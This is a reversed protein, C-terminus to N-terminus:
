ASLVGAASVPAKPEFLRRWGHARNSIRSQRIFRELRGEQVARALEDGHDLYDDETWGLVGLAERVQEAQDRTALVPHFALESGEAPVVMHLTAGRDTVYPVVTWPLATM